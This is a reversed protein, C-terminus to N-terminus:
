PCDNVEPDVTKAAEGHQKAVNREHDATYQATYTGKGGDLEKARQDYSAALEEHKKCEDRHETASMDAPKTGPAKHSICGFLGLALAVAITTRLM